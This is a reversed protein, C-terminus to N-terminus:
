KMVAAEYRLLLEEEMEAMPKAKELALQKRVTDLLLRGALGETSKTGMLQIIAFGSEMEVPGATEGIAIRGAEALVAGDYFPDEDEIYGLDGGANKTYEDLSHEQALEEFSEGGALKDLVSEAQKRTETVIWRLHYESKPAYQEPHAEIYAEAEEDTVTVTSVAISELLLKYRMDELVQKRSLGLQEEMVTFFREESEYGEASSALERDMEEQTIKIDKGAAEMEMAERLMLTRLVADGYQEYLEETLQRKTITIGGVSAIVEDGPQVADPGEGDEISPSPDAGRGFAQPWMKILVAGTLAILCIAQLIVVAKLVEGRKM